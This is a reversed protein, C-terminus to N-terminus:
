GSASVLLDVKKRYEPLDYILPHIDYWNEGNYQFAYRQFLVDLFKLDSSLRKEKGIHVLTDWWDNADIVDRMRQRRRGLMAKVDDLTVTEGDADLTVSRVIDLLERIAGGSASILLDRAEREPVLKEFEIRKELAEALIARGQGTFEWYGQGKDRLKMTPMTECDFITTISQTEPKLVLGIPPTVILHCHLSKFQDAGQVILEDVVKPAYRDLNDIILLLQRDGEALKRSM